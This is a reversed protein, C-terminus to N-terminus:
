IANGFQGGVSYVPLRVACVLKACHGTIRDHDDPATKGADVGGASDLANQGGVDWDREETLLVVDDERREQAIDDARRDIRHVDDPRHPLHELARDALGRGDVIDIEGIM